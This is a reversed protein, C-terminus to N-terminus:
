EMKRNLIKDYIEQRPNLFVQKGTTSQPHAQNSSGKSDEAPFLKMQDNKKDRKKM